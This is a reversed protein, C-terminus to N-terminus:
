HGNRIQGIASRAVQPRHPHALASRAGQARHPHRMSKTTLGLGSEDGGKTPRTISASRGCGIGDRVRGHFAGAGITSHRLARSLLDDGPKGLANVQIQAVPRRGAQARIQIQAIASGWKLPNASSSRPNRLACCLPGGSGEDLNNGEEVITPKCLAAAPNKGRRSKQTGDIGANPRSRM